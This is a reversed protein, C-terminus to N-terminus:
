SLEEVLMFSRSIMMQSSDGRDLEALSSVPHVLADLFRALMFPQKGDVAHVNAKDSFVYEELVSGIGKDLIQDV